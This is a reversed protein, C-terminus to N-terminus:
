GRVTPWHSAHATAAELAKAARLLDLDGHPAGIIQAGVPLGAPTFGAPLSLTPLGFASIRCNSLMWDIYHAMPRGAVETPWELEVPFPSVQTVPGILVDYREFFTHARRWLEAARTQARGIDLASMARGRAVEDRVTAKVGALRADGLGEGVGTAFLFARVALFVEDAGEFDPEDETVTWGLREVDGMFRWLVEAIDSEVPLGGLTPSWAVRLPRDAPPLPDPIEVHRSLPDRRDYAGIVRLLLLLDDVSRAMPGEISLTSWANGPGVRPVLRSSSRFGVVNNWAAPNRLSGGADSGDAIAVMGCRLAAAAGGSSGGASRTLDFPNRTVGYVPNFSHSGAGFEPTNTKGIAVAGAAKIRAVLLSDAPPRNAAFAACGFTTVFDATETLDKHATVLGALPGPDDGAVIREDVAAARRHAVEADMGVVANVAPNAAAVVALHAELLERASIEKAGIMRRQEVASLRCVSGAEPALAEAVPPPGAASSLEFMAAM